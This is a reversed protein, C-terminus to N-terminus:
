QVSAVLGHQLPRGLYRVYYTPYRQGELTGGDGDNGGARSDVARVVAGRRNGTSGARGMRM